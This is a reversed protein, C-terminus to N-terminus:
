QFVVDNKMREYVSRSTNINKLIADEHSHPSYASSTPLFERADGRVRKDNIM